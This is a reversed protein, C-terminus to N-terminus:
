SGFLDMQQATSPPREIELTRPPAAVDPEKVAAAQNHRDLFDKLKQFDERLPQLM